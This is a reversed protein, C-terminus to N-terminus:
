RRTPLDGTQMFIFQQCLNRIHDNIRELGKIAWLYALNVDTNEPTKALIDLIEHLIRSYRRHLASGEEMITLALKQDKDEFATAVQLLARQVLYAMQLLPEKAPHDSHSELTVNALKEAEDGIRELDSSMKIASLPVRLDSAVPQYVALIEFCLENIAKDQLNIQADGALTKEAIKDSGEELSTIARDLQKSVNRLMSHIKNMLEDLQSDFQKLIHQNSM